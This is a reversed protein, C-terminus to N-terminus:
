VQATPQVRGQQQQVVHWAEHALQREQGPAVHIDSGQSYAISSLLPNSANGPAPAASPLVTAPLPAHAEPASSQGTAIDATAHAPKELSSM